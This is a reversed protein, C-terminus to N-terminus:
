VIKKLDVRKIKHCKSKPNSKTLYAEAIALGLEKTGIKKCPEGLKKHCNCKCNISSYAEDTHGLDVKKVKHLPMLNSCHADHLDVGGMFKNYLTFAKPFEIEMKRKKESSYRKVTSCPTVGAM